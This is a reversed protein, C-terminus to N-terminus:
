GRLHSLSDASIRIPLPDFECTHYHTQRISIHLADVGGHLSPHASISIPLYQTLGALSYTGVYANKM